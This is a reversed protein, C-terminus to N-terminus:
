VFSSVTEFRGNSMVNMNQDLWKIVGDNENSDCIDDAIDKVERQANSVAVGMGCIKLMGMDGIDDGFAVIKSRDIGCWMSIKEIAIEKTANVHTFVFSNRGAFKQMSCTMFQRAIQNAISEDVAISIKYADDEFKNYNSFKYKFGEVWMNEENSFDGRKTVVKINKLKYSMCIRLLDCCTKNPIQEEFIISNRRKALAGNNYIAIDPKLIKVYPLAINESKATAIVFIIKQMQYRKLCDLTYKSVQKNSKLLTNDLDTVIMKFM